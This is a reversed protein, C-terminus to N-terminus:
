LKCFIDWVGNETGSPLPNQTYIILNTADADVFRVEAAASTASRPSAASVNTPKAGMGHPVTWVLNTGDGSIVAKVAKTVESSYALVNGKYKLRVSDDSLNFGFYPIKGGTETIETVNMVFTRTTTGDLMTVSPVGGVVSFRVGNFTQSGEYMSAVKWATGDHYFVAESGLRQGTGIFFGEVRYSRDVSFNVGNNDTLPSPTTNSVNFKRTYMLKSGITVEAADAYRWNTGNYTASNYSRDSITSVRMGRQPTSFATLQTNTVSGRFDFLVPQNGPNEIPINRSVFQTTAQVVTNICVAGVPINVATWNGSLDIWVDDTNNLVISDVGTAVAYPNLTIRSNSVKRAPVGAAAAVGLQLAPMGRTSKINAILMVSSAAEINIGGASPRECMISGTISRAGQCYLLWAGDSIIVTLDALIVNLQNALSETIRIGGKHNGRIEGSLKVNYASELVIAYDTATTNTNECNFHVESSCIGIQRFWTDCNSGNVIYYNENPTRTFEGNNPAQEERLLEKCNVGRIHVVQREINGYTHVGINANKVFVDYECGTTQSDDLKFGTLTNKLECDINLKVRNYTLNSYATCRVVSEGVFDATPKLMCNGFDILSNAVINFQKKVSIVPYTTKLYVGKAVALNYAKQIADSDAVGDMPGFWEPYITDASLDVLGSGIFVQQPSADFRGQITLTVGAQINFMAKPSVKIKVNAPITLNAGIIVTKDLTFEAPNAGFDNMCRQLYTHNPTSLKSATWTDPAQWRFYSGVTKSAAWNDKNYLAGCLDDRMPTTGDRWMPTVFPMLNEGTLPHLKREVLNTVNPM